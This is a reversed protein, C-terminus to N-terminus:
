WGMKKKLYAIVPPERRSQSEIREHFKRYEEPDDIRIARGDEGVEYLVGREWTIREYEKIAERFLKESLKEGNKMKRSLLEIIGAIECDCM